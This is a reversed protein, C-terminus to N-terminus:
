GGGWCVFAEPNDVCRFRTPLEDLSRTDPENPWDRLVCWATADKNKLMAWAEAEDHALVCVMGDTYDTLVGELVWLRMVPTELPAAVAESSESM